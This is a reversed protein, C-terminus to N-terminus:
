PGLHDSGLYVNQMDVGIEMAKRKVFAMFDQPTMGTYGGYQDVQNATAEILLPTNTEKARELAAEIVFENASCCSYIGVTEHKYDTVLKKLKHEM